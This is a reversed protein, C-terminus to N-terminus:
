EYNLPFSLKYVKVDLPNTINRVQYAVHMVGGILVGGLLKLLAAEGNEDELYTSYGKWDIGIEIRETIKYAVIAELRIQDYSFPRSKQFFKFPTM